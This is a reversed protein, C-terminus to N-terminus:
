TRWNFELLLLSVWVSPFEFTIWLLRCDLMNRDLVLLKCDVMGVESITENSYKEFTGPM